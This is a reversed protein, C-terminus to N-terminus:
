GEHWIWFWFSEGDAGVYATQSVAHSKRNSQWRQNDKMKTEILM